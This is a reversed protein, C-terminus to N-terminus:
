GGVTNTRGVRVLQVCAMYGSIWAGCMGAKACELPLDVYAFTDEAVPAYLHAKSVDVGVFVTSEPM